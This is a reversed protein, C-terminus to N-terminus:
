LINYTQIYMYRYISTYVPPVTAIYIRKLSTYALQLACDISCVGFEPVGVYQIPTNGLYLFLYIFIVDIRRFGQMSFFLHRRWESVVRRGIAICRFRIKRNRIAAQAM